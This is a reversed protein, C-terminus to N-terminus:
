PARDPLVDPREPDWAARALTYAWVETAGAQWLVHACASLTASTTCVDDILVPRRGRMPVDGESFAGIVNEQRARADLHVQPRTARVRRVAGKVVPLGIQRGLVEALLRAQNYGRQRERSPHLPVPILCDGHIADGPWARAMIMGLPQALASRGRYKLHHIARRLPGDFVAASRIGSLPPPARHCLSCTGSHVTPRGCRDCVPSPIPPTAEQCRACFLSGWQGCGVCRPPFLLDLLGQWAPQIARVVPNLSPM